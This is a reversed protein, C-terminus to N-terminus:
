KGPCEVELDDCGVCVLAWCEECDIVICGCEPCDFTKEAPVSQRKPRSHKLLCKVPKTITVTSPGTVTYGDRDSM